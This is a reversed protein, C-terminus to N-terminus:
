LLELLEELSLGAQRMISKLTGKALEQHIPVPITTKGEESEKCLIAHSGSTRIHNFGLKSLVKIIKKVSVIPLKPM